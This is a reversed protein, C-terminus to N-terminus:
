LMMMSDMVNRVDDPDCCPCGRARIGPAHARAENKAAAGSITSSPLINMKQKERSTNQSFVQTPTNPNPPPAPLSTSTSPINKITNTKRNIVFNKSTTEVKEEKMVSDSGEVDGVDDDGVIEDRYGKLKSIVYDLSLLKDSTDVM